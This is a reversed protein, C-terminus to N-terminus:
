PLTIVRVSVGEAELVSPLVGTATQTSLWVTAPATVAYAAAELNVLNLRPHRIALHVM